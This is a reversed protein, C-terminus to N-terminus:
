DLPPKAQAANLLAVLHYLFFNSDFEVNLPQMTELVEVGYAEKCALRYLALPKAFGNIHFRPDEPDFPSAPEVTVENDLISVTLKRLERSVADTAGVITVTLEQRVSNVFDVGAIWSEIDSFLRETEARADDLLKLQQASAQMRRQILAQVAEKLDAKTTHM